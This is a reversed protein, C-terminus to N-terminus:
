PVIPQSEALLDGSSMPQPVPPPMDDALSTPAVIELLIGELRQLEQRAVTPWVWGGWLGEDLSALVDPRESQRLYEAVDALLDDWRCTPHVALIDHVRRELPSHPIAGPIARVRRPEIRHEKRDRRVDHRVRLFLPM